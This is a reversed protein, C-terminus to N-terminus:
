SAGKAIVVACAYGDARSVTASWEDLGQDAALDAAGGHLRLGAGALEVEPWPVEAGLAKIAAEKAAFCEALVAASEGAREAEADTYVRAVYREGHDSLATGVAEVAVLDIGVRLPM